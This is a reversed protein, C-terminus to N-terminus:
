ATRLKLFMALSIGAGVVMGAGIGLISNTDDPLPSIFLLIGAVLSFVVLGAMFAIPTFEYWTLLNGSNEYPTESSVRNRANNLLFAVIFVQIGVIFWGLGCLVLAPWMKIPSVAMLAGLTASTLDLIFLFINRFRKTKDITSGRRFVQVGM